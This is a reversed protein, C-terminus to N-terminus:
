NNRTWRFGKYSHKPSNLVRIINSAKGGVAEAAKGSGEYSNIIEGTEIDHQYILGKYVPSKSGSIGFMPNNEGVMDKHLVEIRHKQNEKESCWELNAVTNNSKNGDIHNVQPLNNENPIFALAVLRHVFYNKVCDGHNIRVKVYGDKRETKKISKNQKKVNGLNSVFYMGNTNEIEKWIEEM